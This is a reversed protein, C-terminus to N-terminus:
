SSQRDSTMAATTLRALFMPSPMKGRRVDEDQLHALLFFRSGSLLLPLIPKRLNEAHILEREVWTSAEAAASMVAIVASAQAIAERIRRSWPDGHYIENDFWVDVNAGRLWKALRLVYRKDTRSYSIFVTLHASPVPPAHSQAVRSKVGGASGRRRKAHRTPSEGSLEADSPEDGGGPSQPPAVLAPLMPPGNAASYGYFGDGLRAARHGTVTMSQEKSTARDKASVHMIENADIDFTVEIQPVGHPAPPLDVLRFKGLTKNHMAMEREGQLVHIEVSTQMEEATTFVETRNTPITTNREILKTFVGGKTEIGLSLPTVDLLLVDKVEGKLVGAQIAAGVAVVEDPNVGKHPDRDTLQRVLDQVAPMRTSGGVLIVHHIDGKSVGADKIAQEFPVKCRELLDATMQEFQARTLTEDLHLPGDPTVTVFPLNIQTQQVQSLEIKAREAAEKVRRVARPDDSVGDGGRDLIRTLLWEVIAHDWDDGGLSMDGHTSKVEFVGDGIELISVDFTGGGLDFVLVTEDRDAKGFGYALAAATPERIIRLVTLGAMEAARKTATIQSTTFGAPVTLVADRVDTAFFESAINRLHELLLAALDEPAYSEGDVVIDHGVRGFLHKFSWFTRDVNTISQRLAPTGIVLRGNDEFSVVSPVLSTGDSTPVVVVKQDHLAAVVSKTTGLDIGLARVM